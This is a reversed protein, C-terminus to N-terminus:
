VCLEDVVEVLESIDFPKTMVKTVSDQTVMKMIERDASLFVVPTLDGKGRLRELLDRGSLEPMRYDSVIVDFPQKEHWLLAEFGRNAIACRYGEMELIMSITNLIDADDDVILVRNM